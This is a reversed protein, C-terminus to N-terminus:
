WSSRAVGAVNNRFNGWDVAITGQDDVVVADMFRYSTM